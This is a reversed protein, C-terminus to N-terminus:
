KNMDIALMAIDDDNPTNNKFKIIDEYIISVFDHLNQNKNAVIMEKLRSSDYLERHENRAEIVGDTYMILRDGTSFKITESPYELNQMVGVVPGTQIM